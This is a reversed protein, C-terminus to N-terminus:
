RGTPPGDGGAAQKVVVTMEERLERWCPDVDEWGGELLVRQVDEHRVLRASDSETSDIKFCVTLYGPCQLLIHGSVEEGSKLIVVGKAYDRDVDDAEGTGPEASASGVESGVEERVACEPDEFQGCGAFILVVILLVLVKM